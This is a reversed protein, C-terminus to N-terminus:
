AAYKLIDGIPMGSHLYEYRLGEDTDIFSGRKLNIAAQIDLSISANLNQTTPKIGFKKLIRRRNFVMETLLGIFEQNTWMYNTPEESLLLVAKIVHLLKKNLVAGGNIETLTFLPTFITLPITKFPDAEPNVIIVIQDRYDVTFKLAGELSLERLATIVQFNSETAFDHM